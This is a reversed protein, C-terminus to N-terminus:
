QNWDKQCIHPWRLDLLSTNTQWVEIASTEQYSSNPITNPKRYHIYWWPQYPSIEQYHLSSKQHPIVFLPGNSSVKRSQGEWHCSKKWHWYHDLKCRTIYQRIESEHEPDKTKNSWYVQNTFEILERSNPLTSMHNLGGKYISTDTDFCYQLGTEVTSLISTLLKSPPKMSCNSSAAIYCHRLSVQPM